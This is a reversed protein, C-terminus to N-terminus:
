DTNVLKLDSAARVCMAGCQILEKLMAEPNRDARKRKVEDWFEDLEELIVSYAEHASNLPEHSRRARMVEDAISNIAIADRTPTLPDKKPESM